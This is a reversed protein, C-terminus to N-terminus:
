PPEYGRITQLRTNNTGLWWRVEVRNPMDRSGEDGECIALLRHGGYKSKRVICRNYNARQEATEIAKGDQGEAEVCQQEIATPKRSPKAQEVCRYYKAWQEKFGLTRNPGFNEQVCQREVAGLISPDCQPWDGDLKGGEERFCIKYDTLKGWYSDRLCAYDL